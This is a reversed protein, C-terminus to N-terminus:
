ARPFRSYWYVTVTIVNDALGEASGIGSPVARRIVVEQGQYVFRRGAKFLNVFASAKDNLAKVGKAPSQPEYINIQFFGTLNDEGADGMTAPDNSAPRNFVKAWMVNDTKPATQNEYHTPLEPVVTKYAAVLAANVKNVDM